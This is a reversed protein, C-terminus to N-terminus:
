WYHAQGNKELPWRPCQSKFFFTGVESIQILNSGLSVMVPIQQGSDKPLPCTILYPQLIGDKNNGWARVWILGFDTVTSLAPEVQESNFWLQCTLTVNPHIRDMMALIRIVPGIPEPERDDYYARYLQLTGNRTPFEQWHENQIKLNYIQPSQGCAGKKKTKLMERDYLLQIPISPMRSAIQSILESEVLSPIHNSISVFPQENSRPSTQDQAYNHQCFM